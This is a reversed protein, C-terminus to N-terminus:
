GASGIAHPPEAYFPLRGRLIRVLVPEKARLPETWSDVGLEKTTNPFALTPWVRYLGPRDFVVDPCMEGVWVDLSQSAGPKMVYFLEQPVLRLNAANGCHNVGDPGDVDFLFNDRRIHVTAGREGVNKVIFSIGVTLETDAEIRAPASLQLHAARQDQSPTSSDSVNRGGDDPVAIGRSVVIPDAVLEKIPSVSADRVSPEAVFPADQTAKKPGRAPPPPFGLKAVVTAGASFARASRLDFCYLLPSVSEEYRAGPALILARDDVVTTPRLPSPLKCVVTEPPKVKGAKAGTKPEPASAGEPPQIELTLLRADAALRVPVDGDNTVAIKWASADGSSADVRLTVHVPPLPPPPESKAGALAPWLVPLAFLFSLRV